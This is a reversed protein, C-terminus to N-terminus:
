KDTYRSKNKEYYSSPSVTVKQMLCNWCAGIQRVIRANERTEQDLKSRGSKRRAEVGVGLITPLGGKAVVVNEWGQEKEKGKATRRSHSRREPSPPSLEEIDAPSQPMGPSGAALSPNYYEAVPGPSPVFAVSDPTYAVVRHEVPTWPDDSTSQMAPRYPLNHMLQQPVSAQYNEMSEQYPFLEQQNVAAYPDHM